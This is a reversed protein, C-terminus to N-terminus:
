CVLSSPRLCISLRIETMLHLCYCATATTDLVIACVVYVIDVICHTWFVRRDDATAVTAQDFM